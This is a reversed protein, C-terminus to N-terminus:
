SGRCIIDHDMQDFTVYVHMDYLTGHIGYYTVNSSHDAITLKDIPLLPPKKVRKIHVLVKRQKLFFDFM